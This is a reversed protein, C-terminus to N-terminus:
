HASVEDRLSGILTELEQRRPELVLRIADQNLRYVMVLVITVIGLMLAVIVALLALAWMEGSGIQWAMLLTIHLVFATVSLSIPLLYWWHVNRLLWIQHEVQARSSEVCNRLSEGSVRSQRNQRARDLLMYGAVWLLVPITLYWTWPLGIKVGMTIWVPILLLSLGVERVDRWFIAAMFAQQNRRVEKLLLDPDITLQVQALQSQWAQQLNDPSM